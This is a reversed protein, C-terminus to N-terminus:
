CGNSLKEFLFWNLDDEFYGDRHYTFGYDILKLNKFNDLMEGAFDRKFLRDTYGRYNINVPSPNYYEIICIYKKSIKYMLNYVTLLEEPKIHILVGRTFVFDYKEDTKFNLISQNYTNLNKILNLQKFAKKNIEVASLNVNPILNKIVQLNIGISAGLEMVSKIDNKKSLIRSFLYFSNAVINADKNRDIYEDGFESAWFKEQETKLKNKNLSM